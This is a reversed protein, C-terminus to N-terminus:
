AVYQSLGSRELWQKVAGIDWILVDNNKNSSKVCLDSTKVEKFLDVHNSISFLFLFYMGNDPHSTDTPM